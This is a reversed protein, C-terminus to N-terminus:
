NPFSHQRVGVAPFDVAIHLLLLQISLDDCQKMPYNELLKMGYVQRPYDKQLFLWSFDGVV